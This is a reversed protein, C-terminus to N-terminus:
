NVPEFDDAEAIANLDIEKIEEEAEKHKEIREMQRELKAYMREKIDYPDTDWVILIQLAVNLVDELENLVRDNNLHEGARLKMVEVTLEGMEEVLKNLQNEVGYEEIIRESMDIMEIRRGINM